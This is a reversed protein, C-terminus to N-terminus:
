VPTQDLLLIFPRDSANARVVVTSSSQSHLAAGVNTGGIPDLASVRPASYAGLGTITLSVPLVGMESRMDLATFWFVFATRLPTVQIPVVVFDDPQKFDPCAATGNGKFLTQPTGGTVTANVGHYLLSGSQDGVVNGRIFGLSAELANLVLTPTTAASAPVMGLGSGSSDIGAFVYLREVGVGLNFFLARLTGKACLWAARSGTAGELSTGIETLWVPVPAIAGKITRSWQGHAVNGFWNTTTSIDRAFTFANIGTSFYEHAYMTYSPIDSTVAGTTDLGWYGPDSQPFSIPSPYPHKSLASIAAPEASAAQMPSVSAFGDTVRVGAFMAPHALIYASSQAVIDPIVAPVGGVTEAPVIATAYYNNIDLFDSGFSTENWIELDFGLDSKGATGLISQMFGSVTGLFGTWGTMTANYDTTGIQSWPKYLLTNFILEGGVPITVGVPKSLTVTAGDIGTVLADSMVQAASIFSIDSAGSGPIYYGTLGSYGAILGATSSLTVTTDGPAVAAAGTPVATQYPCPGQDIAQVLVLPRLGAAQAAKVFAVTTANATQSITAPNDYSAQSWMLSMRVHRFGAAAFMPLAEPHGPDTNFGIGNEITALSRTSMMSRWPQLWHSHSGTWLATVPSPFGNTTRVTRSQSLAAAAAAAAPKIAGGVVIASAASAALSRRTLNEGFEM